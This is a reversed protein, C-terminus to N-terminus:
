KKKEIEAFKLKYTSIVADIGIDKLLHLLRTVSQAPMKTKDITIVYAKSKDLGQINEVTIIQEGMTVM